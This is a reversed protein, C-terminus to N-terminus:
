TRISKLNNNGKTLKRMVSRAGIGPRGAVVNAYTRGWYPNNMRKRTILGRSFRQITRIQNNTPIRPMVNRSRAELTRLQRSYRNFINQKLRVITNNRGTYGVLFIPYPTQTLAARANALRGNLRTKTNRLNKHLNKFNAPKANRRIRLFRLRDGLIMLRDLDKVINNMHTLQKM